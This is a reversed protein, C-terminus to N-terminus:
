NILKIPSQGYKNKPLYQETVLKGSVDILRVKLYTEGELEFQIQITESQFNVQVEGIQLNVGEAEIFSNSDFYNELECLSNYLNLRGNSVSRHFLDAIPDTGQLIFGKLLLTAKSPDSQVIHM